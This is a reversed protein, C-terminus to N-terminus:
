TNLANLAAALNTKTCNTGPIITDGAPIVTTSLYLTNNVLFYKGSEIRADAFMDDDTPANIKQIYLKTDAPYDVSVPGCDAWINNTGHLTKIEPIDALSYSTGSTKQIVLAVPHDALYAKVENTTTFNQLWSASLLYRGDTSLSICDVAAPVGTVPKLSDCMYVTSGSFSPQTYSIVRKVGGTEAFGSWAAFNGDLVRYVKDETLEGNGDANIALTGGYVTGAETPFAVNYTDGQYPEYATATSGFEFQVNTSNNKLLSLRFFCANDPVTVLGTKIGSGSVADVAYTRSIFTKNKDYYAIIAPASVTDGKNYQFAYSGPAIQSYYGTSKYGANSVEVGSSNILVNNKWEALSENFLNKGSRMVNCGTWGSIPRVNTPSPNGTGSQVPEIDVTLGKLPMGDAGDDFHAIAGSATDYIAPAKQDVASKLDDVDESLETYDEPISALVAEAAEQADEAKGQATEAAAQASEALGQATEAAGKATAADSASGSAQQAYYKANNHYAPDSSGVDTGGRKGVAYAEADKASGDAATASDSAEGAKTTATTAATSATGADRSANSASGAASQASQDASNMRILAIDAYARAADEADGAHREYNQARFAAGAATNASDAAQESLEKFSALEENFQAETGTYGGAVAQEYASDGDMVNFTQGEPHERDTINVSHGHDINEITVEPSYGDEGRIFQQEPVRVIVNDAM